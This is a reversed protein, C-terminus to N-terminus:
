ERWRIGLSHPYVGRESGTGILPPEAWYVVLGLERIAEDLQLDVPRGIRDFFGRMKACCDGTVLYGSASRSREAACFFSNVSDTGHMQCSEGFFVLDFEEPLHALFRVAQNGFDAGLLADDELVFATRYGKEVIDRFIYRQKLFVSIEQRTLSWTRCFRLLDGLGIDRDDYKEVWEAQIGWRRLVPELQERRERLRTCHVVYFRDIKALDRKEM